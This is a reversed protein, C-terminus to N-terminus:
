GVSEEHLMIYFSYKNNIKILDVFLLIKKQFLCFINKAPSFFSFLIIRKKKIVRGKGGGADKIASCNNKKYSGKAVPLSPNLM